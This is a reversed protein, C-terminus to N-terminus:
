PADSCGLPPSEGLVKLSIGLARHWPQYGVHAPPTSPSCGHQAEWISHWGAFLSLPVIAHDGPLPKLNFHAAPGWAARGCLPQLAQRSPQPAATLHYVSFFNNKVAQTSSSKRLKGRLGTVLLLQWPMRLGMGTGHASVSSQEQRAPTLQTGLM